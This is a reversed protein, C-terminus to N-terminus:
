ASPRSAASFRPRNPVATWRSWIVAMVATIGLVRAPWPAFIVAGNVFMFLFVGLRWDGVTRSGRQYSDSDWWSWACDLLWLAIFGYNIYLGWPWNFGTFAATQRATHALAAAHSWGHIFHFVAIAHGILLLVGSSWLARFAAFRAPARWRLYEAAAWAATAVAISGRVAVVAWVDSTELAATV